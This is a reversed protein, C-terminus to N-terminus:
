VCLIRIRPAAILTTGSRHGSLHSKEEEYHEAALGGDAQRWIMARSSDVCVDACLVACFDGQVPVDRRAWRDEDNVADRGIMAEPIESLHM